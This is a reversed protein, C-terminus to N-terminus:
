CGGVTEVPDRGILVPVTSLLVDTRGADTLNVWITGDRYHRRHSLWRAAASALASKGIGGTGTVSVLRHRSLAEIIAALDTARGFFPAHPVGFLKSEAAAVRQMRRGDSVTGLLTVADPNVDDRHQLVFKAAEDPM